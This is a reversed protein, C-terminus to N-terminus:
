IDNINEKFREAEVFYGKATDDWTDNPNMLYLDERSQRTETVTNLGSKETTIIAVTPKM